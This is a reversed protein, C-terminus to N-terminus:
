CTLEQFPRWAIDCSGRYEGDIARRAALTACLSLQYRSIEQGTNRQLDIIHFGSLNM